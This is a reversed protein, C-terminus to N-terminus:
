DVIEEEVEVEEDDDNEEEEEQANRAPAADGYEYELLETQRVIADFLDEVRGFLKLLANTARRYERIAHAVRRYKDLRAKMEQETVEAAQLVYQADDKVSERHREISEALKSFEALDINFKLEPAPGQLYDRVKEHVQLLLEPLKQEAIDALKPFSSVINAVRQRRDWMRAQAELGDLLRRINQIRQATDLNM